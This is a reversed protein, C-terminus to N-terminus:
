WGIYPPNIRALTSINRASLGQTYLGSPYLNLSIFGIEDGKYSVACHFHCATQETNYSGAAPRDLVIVGIGTQADFTINGMPARTIRRDPILLGDPNSNNGIRLEYWTFTIGSRDSQGQASVPFGTILFPVHRGVPGGSGGDYGNVMVLDGYEYFSSHVLESPDQIYIYNMFFSDNMVGIRWNAPTPTQLRSRVYFETASVEFTQRVTVEQIEKQALVEFGFGARTGEAPTPLLGFSYDIPGYVLVENVFVRLKGAETTLKLYVSSGNDPANPNDYRRLYKPFGTLTPNYRAKEEPPLNNWGDEWTQAIDIAQYSVDNTNRPGSIRIWMGAGDPDGPFERRVVLTVYLCKDYYASRKNELLNAPIELGITAWFAGGWDPTYEDNEDFRPWARLILGAEVNRSPIATDSAIVTQDIHSEVYNGGDNNPRPNPDDLDIRHSLKDTAWFKLLRDYITNDGVGQDVGGPFENYQITYGQGVDPTHDRLSTGANARFLDLIYYDNQPPPVCNSDNEVLIRTTTNGAGDAYTGVMDEEVCAVSVLYGVPQKATVVEPTYPTETNLLIEEILPIVVFDEEAKEYTIRAILWQRIDCDCFEFFYARVLALLQANNVLSLVRILDDATREEKILSASM